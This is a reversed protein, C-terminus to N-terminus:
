GKKGPMNDKPAPPEKGYKEKYKAASKEWLEPSCKFCQDKARDPHNPCLEGKAKAAKFLKDSCMSCEDEVVGHEDCWWGHGDEKKEKNAAANSPATQGCGLAVVLGATLAAATLSKMWMQFM